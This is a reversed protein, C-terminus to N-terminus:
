SRRRMRTLLAAAAAALVFLTASRTGGELTPSLTCGSDTEPPQPAPGASVGSSGGAGQGGAGANGGDPAGPGGGGGGGGGAGAPGADPDSPPVYQSGPAVITIVLRVKTPMYLSATQDGVNDASPKGNQTDKLIIAIKGSGKTWDVATGPPSWFESFPTEWDYVGTTTYAPSQGVCAYTPQAEFCAQFKTPTDTPKTYVELHMHATGSAYDIPSKWDAPTGPLPDVRYHSDPMDATHEYTADVVVFQDALAAASWLSSLSLAVAFAGARRVRRSQVIHM